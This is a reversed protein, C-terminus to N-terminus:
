KPRVTNYKNLVVIRTEWWFRSIELSDFVNDQELEPVDKTSLPVSQRLKPVLYCESPLHYINM